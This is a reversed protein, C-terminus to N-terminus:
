RYKIECDNCYKGMNFCESQVLAIYIPHMTNRQRSCKEYYSGDDDGCPSITKSVLCGISLSYAVGGYFGMLSRKVFCLCVSM